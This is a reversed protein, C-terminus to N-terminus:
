GQPFRCAAGPRDGGGENSRRQGRPLRKAGRTRTWCRRAHHAALREVTPHDFAVTPHVARDGGGRQHLRDRMQVAMLSDLGQEAFGQEADLARASAFGLVGAVVEGVLTRLAERAEAASGGGFRKGATRSTEEGEGDEKTLASLLKRRGRAAYVAAFRGWDVRAVTGQAAGSGWLRELASLAPEAAMPMVGIEALRSLTAAESMGGESWVGLGREAGVAGPGTASAVARGPVREGCCVGRARGGWVGAASSFMVFADLGMEGVLQHLM